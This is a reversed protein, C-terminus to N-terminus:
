IYVSEICYKPLFIRLYVTMYPAYIYIRNQGGRCINEQHLVRRNLQSRTGEGLMMRWFDWCRRKRTYLTPWFWVYVTYLRYQCPYWWIYPWIRHMCIRNQCVRNAYRIGVRIWICFCWRGAMYCIVSLVSNRCFLSLVTISVRYYTIFCPNLQM